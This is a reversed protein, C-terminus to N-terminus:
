QLLCPLSSPLYKGGVPEVHVGRSQHHHGFVLLGILCQLPLKGVVLHLFAIHRHQLAHPLAVLFAGDLQGQTGVGNVARSLYYVRVLAFAGDGGILDHAGALAAGEDGEMGVGPAGVLQAEVTGMLLTEGQGDSAIREIAM